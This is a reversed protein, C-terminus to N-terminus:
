VEAGVRFWFLHFVPGDDVHHFGTRSELNYGGRRCQILVLQPWVRFHEALVASPVIAAGNQVVMASEPIQTNALNENFRAVDARRFEGHADTVLFKVLVNAAKSEAFACSDFQRALDVSHNPRWLRPAFNGDRADRHAM